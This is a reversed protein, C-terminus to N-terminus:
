RGLARLITKEVPSYSNDSRELSIPERPLLPPQAIFRPQKGYDKYASHVLFPHCLYVKGAPGTALQELHHASGACGDSALERLTLGAEKAPALQRATDIHSGVRIRTSSDHIGVDSFLFLMLLARGKGECAALESPLHTAMAIAVLASTECCPDEYSAPDSFCQVTIAARIPDIELRASM